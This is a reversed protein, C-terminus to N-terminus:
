AANRAHAERYAERLRRLEILNAAWATGGQKREAYLKAQARELAEIRDRIDTPTM